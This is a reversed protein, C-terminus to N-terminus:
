EAPETSVDTGARSAMVGLAIGGVALIPILRKIGIARLLQLATALLMPDALVSRTASKAAEMAERELRNRYAVYSGGAILTVIFFMAAGTLCAEVLGYKQLVFVFAAACLFGITVFLAIGAAMALATLRMASGTTRSLGDIIRQFM